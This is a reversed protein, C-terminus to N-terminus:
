RVVANALNFFLISSISLTVHQAEVSYAHLFANFFKVGEVLNVDAIQNNAEGTLFACLHSIIQKLLNFSDVELLKVM